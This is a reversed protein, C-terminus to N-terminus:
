GINKCVFCVFNNYHRPYIRVYKKKCQKCEFTFDELDNSLIKNIESEFLEGDSHYAILDKKMSIRFLSLKM